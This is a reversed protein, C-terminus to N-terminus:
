RVFTCHPHADFVEDSNEFGLRYLLTAAAQTGKGNGGCSLQPFRLEYEVNVKCHKGCLKLGCEDLSAVDWHIDPRNELWGFFDQLDEEPDMGVFVKRQYDCVGNM